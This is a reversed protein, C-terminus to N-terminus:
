TELSSRYWAKNTREVDDDRGVKVSSEAIGLDVGAMIGDGSNEAAPAESDAPKGSFASLLDTNVTLLHEVTHPAIVVEVGIYDLFYVLLASASLLGRPRAILWNM